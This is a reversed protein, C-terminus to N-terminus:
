WACVGNRIVERKDNLTEILSSPDSTRLFHAQVGQRRHALLSSLLQLASFRVYFSQDALLAFISQLANPDALLLDIHRLGVDRQPSSPEADCLIMFTELLAKGLDADQSAEPLTALLAPYAINGVDASLDRAIGKLALVSARRDAFSTSQALRDALKTITTDATQVEAQPGRIATNMQQFFDM